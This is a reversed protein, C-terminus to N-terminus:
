GNTVEPSPKRGYWVERDRVATDFAALADLLYNALIFDPTNSGNEVSYRNLLSTLEQRMSRESSVKLLAMAADRQAIALDREERLTTLEDTM